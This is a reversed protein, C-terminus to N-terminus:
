EYVRYDHPQFKIRMMFKKGTSKITGRLTVDDEFREGSEINYKSLDLEKDSFIQNFLEENM